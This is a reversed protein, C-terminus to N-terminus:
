MYSNTGGDRNGTEWLNVNILSALFFRARQQGCCARNKISLVKDVDKEDVWALSVNHQPIWTYTREGVKTAYGNTTYHQVAVMGNRNIM